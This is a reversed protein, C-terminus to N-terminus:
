KGHVKQDGLIQLEEECLIDMTLQEYCFDETTWEEIFPDM